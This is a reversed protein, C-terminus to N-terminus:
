RDSGSRDGDAVRTDMARSEGERNERVNWEEILPQWFAYLKDNVHRQHDPPGAITWHSEGLGMLRANITISRPPEQAAPTPAPMDDGKAPYHAIGSVTMTGRTPSRSAVTCAPRTSRATGTPM